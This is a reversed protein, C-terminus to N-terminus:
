DKQRRHPGGRHRWAREEDARHLRRPRRDAAAQGRHEQIPQQKNNNMYTCLMYCANTTKASPPPAGKQLLPSRKSCTEFESTGALLWMRNM